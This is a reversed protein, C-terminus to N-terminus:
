SPSIPRAPAPSDDKTAQYLLGLGLVGGGVALPTSMGLITGGTGGGTGQALVFARCADENAAISQGGALNAVCGSAFKVTAKSNTTTMVLADSALPMNPAANVLQNGSTVTVLGEVTTITASQAFATGAAATLALAIALHKM